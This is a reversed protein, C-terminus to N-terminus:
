LVSSDCFAGALNVEDEQASVNHNGIGRSCLVSTLMYDSFFSFVVDAQVTSFPFLVSM